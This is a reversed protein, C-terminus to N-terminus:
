SYGHLLTACCDRAVHDVKFGARFYFDEFKIRM